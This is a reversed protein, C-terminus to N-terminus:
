VSYSSIVYQQAEVFRGKALGSSSHSIVRSERLLRKIVALKRNKTAEELAVNDFISPDVRKDELL